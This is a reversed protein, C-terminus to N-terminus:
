PRVRGSLSVQANRALTFRQKIESSSSLDIRGVPRFIAEGDARLDVTLEMLGTEVNDVSVTAFDFYQSFAVGIRRAVMEPSSVMLLVRHVGRVDREAQWAGHDALFRPTAMSAVVSGAGLVHLFPLVDFWSAALMPQQYFRRVREDPIRALVAQRGGPLKVDAYAFFGQIVIGKVHFPSEGPAVPLPPFPELEFPM